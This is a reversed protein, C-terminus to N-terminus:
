GHIFMFVPLMGKAGEPRVINLKITFGDATITKESEEIGSVDVKVSAQAQELVKKADYPDMEEMPPGDSSNLQKLFARVHTDLHPDTAFDIVKKSPKAMTATSM